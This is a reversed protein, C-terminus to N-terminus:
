TIAFIDDARMTFKVVTLKGEAAMDLDPLERAVIGLGKLGWTRVFGSGTLGTIPINVLNADRKYDDRVGTNSQAAEFWDELYLQEVVHHMPVEITFEVPKTQGGTAWTKDPMDSHELEEKIGSLKTITLGTPFPPLIPILKFVNDPIHAGAIRNKLNFGM